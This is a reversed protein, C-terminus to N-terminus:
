SKDNFYYFSHLWEDEAEITTEVCFKSESRLVGTGCMSYISSVTPLRGM